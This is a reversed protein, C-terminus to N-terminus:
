IIADQLRDSSLISSHSLVRCLESNQGSSYDGFLGGPLFRYLRSSLPQASFNLYLDATTECIPRQTPVLALGKLGPLNFNFGLKQAWLHVRLNRSDDTFACCYASFRENQPLLVLVKFWSGSAATNTTPNKQKTKKLM